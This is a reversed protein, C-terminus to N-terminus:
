NVYQVTLMPRFLIAPLSNSVLAFELSSNRGGSLNLIAGDGRQWIFFNDPLGLRATKPDAIIWKEGSYVELLSSLTQRRRGDELEIGRLEHAPIDASALSHLILALSDNGYSSLM